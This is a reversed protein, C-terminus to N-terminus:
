GYVVTRRGQSHEVFKSFTRTSFPVFRGVTLRFPLILSSAQAEQCTDSPRIEAFNGLFIAIEPERVAFGEPKASALALFVALHRLCLGENSGSDLNSYCGRSRRMSGTRRRFEPLIRLSNRDSFSTRNVLGQRVAYLTTLYKVTLAQATKKPKKRGLRVVAFGRSRRAHFSLKEDSRSPCAAIQPLNSCSQPM